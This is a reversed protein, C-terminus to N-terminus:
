NSILTNKHLKKTILLELKDQPMSLQHVDTAAMQIIYDANIKTPILPLLRECYQFVGQLKSLGLIQFTRINTWNESITIEM